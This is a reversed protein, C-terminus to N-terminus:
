GRGAATGAPPVATGRLLRTTTGAAAKFALLSAEEDDAEAATSLASITVSSSLLLLLLLSLSRLAMDAAKTRPSQHTYVPQNLNPNPILIPYQLM